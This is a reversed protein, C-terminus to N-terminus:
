KGIAMEMGLGDWVTGMRDWGKREQEMGVEIELGMQVQVEMEDWAFFGRHRERRILVGYKTSAGPSHRVKGVHFCDDASLSARHGPSYLPPHGARQFLGRALDKVSLAYVDQLRMLAKAAGDLDEAGPLEQEVERLGAHLAAPHSLPAPRPSLHFKSTYNCKDARRVPLGVDQEKMQEGAGVGTRWRWRTGQEEMWEAGGVIGKSRWWNGLGEM